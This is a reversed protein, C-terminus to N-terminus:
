ASPTPTQRSGSDVRKEVVTGELAVFARRIEEVAAPLAPESVQGFGVLIGDPGGYGPLAHDSVAGLALGNRRALECVDRALGDRGTSLVVHLGASPAVISSRPFACQLAHTLVARRNRYIERMKRIHRDYEGSALFDAFALQECSSVHHFSTAHDHAASTLREPLVAWGLRLSPALTKSTSGLYVVRDPALRQLPTVPSKDYRIDSETQDEVILAENDIAWEILEARRAESLKTGWPFQHTPSVVVAVAGMEALEDVILGHEDTAVGRPELGAQRAVGHFLAYSPNEFAITTAGGAALMRTVLSLSHPTCATIIVDDPRPLLGRSRALYAAIGSRLAWLGHSDTSGLDRTSAAQLARQQARLWGNRPFTTVDPVDPRLDFRLKEVSRQEYTSSGLTAAVDNVSPNAGQRLTIYGEAALQRYARAVVGRSVALDEALVRTSPLQTAVPLVGSGITERLQAEIQRGIGGGRGRDISLLLERVQQHRPSM